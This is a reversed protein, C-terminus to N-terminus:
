SGFVFGGGRAGCCFFVLFNLSLGSLKCLDCLPQRTFATSTSTKRRVAFFVFFVDSSVNRFCSGRQLPDEMAAVMDRVSCGQALSNSGGGAGWRTRRLLRSLDYDGGARGRVVPVHRSTYHLNRAM